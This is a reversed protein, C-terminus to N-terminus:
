RPARVAYVQASLLSRRTVRARGAVVEAALAASTGAQAVVGGPRVQPRPANPKGACRRPLSGAQVGAFARM